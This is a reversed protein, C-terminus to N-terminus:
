PLTTVHYSEFPILFLVPPVLGLVPYGELQCAFYEVIRERPGNTIATHGIFLPPLGNARHIPQEQQYHM